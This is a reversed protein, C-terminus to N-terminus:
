VFQAVVAATQLSEDDEEVRESASGSTSKIVYLLKFLSIASTLEMVAQKLKSPASLKLGIQHWKRSDLDIFFSQARAQTVNHM